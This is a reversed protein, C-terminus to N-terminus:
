LTYFLGWEPNNKETPPQKIEDPVQILKMVLQMGNRM